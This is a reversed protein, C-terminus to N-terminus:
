FAAMNEQEDVSINTLKEIKNRFIEAKEDETLTKRAKRHQYVLLAVDEFTQKRPPARAGQDKATLTSAGLLSDRNTLENLDSNLSQFARATPQTTQLPNSMSGRSQM